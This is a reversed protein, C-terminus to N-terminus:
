PMDPWHRNGKSLNDAGPLLQLNFENHLGCVLKSVLPVIHDVHHSVEKAKIYVQTVLGMNAWAPTARLKAAKRGAENAAHLAPNEKRWRAARARDDERYKAHKARSKARGAEPDRAYIRRCSEAVLKRYLEPKALRNRKARAIYAERHRLYNQRALAKTRDPNGKYWERMYERHLKRQQEDRM